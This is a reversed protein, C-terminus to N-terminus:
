ANAHGALGRLQNQKRVHQFLEEAVIYGVCQSSGCRCPYNRYEELDYSYNFTIEEGAPIDRGAVIWIRDEKWQIACNPDCSHNIYRALNSEAKGDLYDINNLKFIYHNGAACRRLMEQGDIKEGVYEIVQAGKLIARAAFLGAGHIGSPKRVLSNSTISM